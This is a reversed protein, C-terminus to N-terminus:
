LVSERLQVKLSSVRDTLYTAFRKGNECIRSPMNAGQVQAVPDSLKLAFRASFLKGLLAGKVVVQTPRVVNEFLNGDKITACQLANRTCDFM